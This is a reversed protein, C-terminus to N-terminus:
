KRNFERWEKPTMQKTPTGRQRVKSPDPQENPTRLNAEPNRVRSTDWKRVKNALDDGLLKILMDGDVDKFLKQQAVQIDEKVLQAAESATMEFGIKAARHIYKAMEAVMPKTPPLNTKQLAEVFQDSYEKAYKAKLAENRQNEIAEKHSKEMDDVAKLKRRAEKLERDRPDLLEDELQAALYKEALDRPNHGLKTAAEFYKEPDKMMMVFQEAQKRMESAQMFKQNASKYKAYDKLAADVDVEEEKGDVIVKRKMAERAAEKVPNEEKPADARGPDKPDIVKPKAKQSEVWAKAESGTMNPSPADAVPAEAVPSAPAAVAVDTM